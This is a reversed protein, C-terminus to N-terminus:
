LGADPAPADAGSPSGLMRYAVSRLHKRNEEFRAALWSGEDVSMGERQTGEYSPSSEWGFFTVTQAPSRGLTRRCRWSDCRRAGTRGISSPYRMSSCEDLEPPLNM